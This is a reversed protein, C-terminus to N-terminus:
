ANGTETLRYENILFMVVPLLPLFLRYENPMAIVCLTLAYALLTVFVGRYHNWAWRSWLRIPGAYILLVALLFGTLPARIVWGESLNRMLMFVESFYEADAFVIRSLVFQMGAPIALMCLALPISPRILLVAVVAYLMGVDARSASGFFLAVLLLAMDRVSGSRALLIAQLMLLSMCLIFASVPRYGDFMLYPYILFLIWVLASGDKLSFMRRLLLVSCFLASADFLVIPVSLSLDDGLLAHLGGSMARLLLYPLIRYQDPARGELQLIADLIPLAFDEIPLVHIRYSAWAAYLAALAYALGVKFTHYKIKNEEVDSMSVPCFCAARLHQSACLMCRLVAMFRVSGLLRFM